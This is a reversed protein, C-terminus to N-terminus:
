KVFLIETSALENFDEDTVTLTYSGEEVLKKKVFRGYSWQTKLVGSGDAVPEPELAYGIDSEVGDATIFLVVLKQSPAFGGGTLEIVGKADLKLEGAVKIEAASQEMSGGTNASNCSTFFVSFSLLTFITLLQKM